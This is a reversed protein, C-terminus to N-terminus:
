TNRSPTLPTCPNTYPHSTQPGVGPRSVISNEVLIKQPSKLSFKTRLNSLHKMTAAEGSLTQGHELDSNGGQLYNGSAQRNYPTLNTLRKGQMAKEKKKQNEASLGRARAEHMPNESSTRSRVGDDDDSDM